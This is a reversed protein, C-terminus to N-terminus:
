HGDLLRQAAIRDKIGFLVSDVTKISDSYFNIQNELQEMREKINSTKGDLLTAKETPQYRVNGIKSVIQLEDSRKERYKKKIQTFHELLTHNEELLRQRLSLFIIQVEPVNEIQALMKVGNQIETSFIERKERFVDVITRKNTEETM